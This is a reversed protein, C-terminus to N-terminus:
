YSGAPLLTGNIVNGRVVLGTVWPTAGHECDPCAACAPPVECGAKECLPGCHLPSPGEDTIVNSAVTIDHLDIPGEFWQPLWTIELNRIRAGTFTCNEISGGSSKFRGLNCTTHVFHTNAIRAGGNSITDIQALDTAVVAAPVTRNFTVRWIESSHFPMTQNTLQTWAGKGIKSQALAAARGITTADRVATAGVVGLTSGPRRSTIMETTPWPFFSIVDGPILMSMVSNTGYATNLPADSVHPNILLCSSGECGLVWMLTTHINFFQM